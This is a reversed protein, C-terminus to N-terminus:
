RQPLSVKRFINCFEFVMFSFIFKLVYFNFILFFPFDNVPHFSLFIISLHTIIVVSFFTRYIIIYAFFLVFSFKAFQRSQCKLYM